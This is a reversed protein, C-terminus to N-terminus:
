GMAKECGGVEKLSRENPSIHVIICDEPGPEGVAYSSDRLTFTQEPLAM